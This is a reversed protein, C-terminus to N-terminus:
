DDNQPEGYPTVTELNVVTNATEAFGGVDKRIIDASLPEPYYIELAEVDTVAVFKHYEGPRVTTYQGDYLETVDELDYDEKTVHIELQGEVVYFMNHKYEHKHTSCHTGAEIFIRHVEIFPTVLLPETSGWIKGYIM